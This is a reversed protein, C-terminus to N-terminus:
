PPGDDVAERASAATLARALWRDLRAPDACAEIRGRTADDVALGRAALVTLLAAAKGKAEGRAEGQRLGEARGRAEGERLGEEKGERLGAERGRLEGERLGEQKGRLEGERARAEALEAVTAAWRAVDALDGPPPPLHAPLPEDFAPPVPLAPSVADPGCFSALKELCAERVRRALELVRGQLTSLEGPTIRYSKSYRSEIYAKRLLSFLHEDDPATKPLADVLLPHQEAAKQGLANLDHSREKYGSFVLSAAHFYREAAQHLLFAAHNLQARGAYYRSGRWFESASAFWYGFNYEGVGLRERDNLAKPTAFDLKEGAYLLVGENVVDCFFYQGMRVERNVFKIDHAILTVPSPAAAERLRAELGRVLGHDDAQKPDRVVALLDFDSKYGTVDDDVWDGRAHSGFLVLLGKPLAERFLAVLAALKERKAEPLHDLTTKM